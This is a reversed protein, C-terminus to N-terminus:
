LFHWLNSNYHLPRPMALDHLDDGSFLQIKCTLCAISLYQGGHDLGRESSEPKNRATSEPHEGVAHDYDM